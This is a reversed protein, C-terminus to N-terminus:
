QKIWQTDDCLAICMRSVESYVCTGADSSDTYLYCTINIGESSLIKM